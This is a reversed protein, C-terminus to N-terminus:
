TAGAERAAAAHAETAAAAGSFSVVVVLSRRGVWAPLAPEDAVVVPVPLSHRALTAVAGAAISGTGVGCVTVDSVPGPLPRLEVAAATAAAAAMQEPLGVTAEWMGLSDLRLPPGSM